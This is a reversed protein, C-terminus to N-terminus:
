IPRSSKAVQSSEATSSSSSPSIFPAICSNWSFAVLSVRWSFKGSSSNNLLSSSSSKHSIKAPTAGTVKTTKNLTTNNKNTLLSTRFNLNYRVLVLGSVSTLCIPDLCYSCSQYLVKSKYARTITRTATVATLKDFKNENSFYIIKINTSRIVKTKTSRKFM